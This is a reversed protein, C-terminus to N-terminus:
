SGEDISGSSTSNEPKGHILIQRSSLVNPDAKARIAITLFTTGTGFTVQAPNCKGSESETIGDIHCFYESERYEGTFSSTFDFNVKCDPRSPDCFYEALEPNKDLLYTAQQFVFQVPPATLVTGTITM